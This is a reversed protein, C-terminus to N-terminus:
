IPIFMFFLTIGGLSTFFGLILMVVGRVSRPLMFEKQFQAFYRNRPDRMIQNEKQEWRSCLHLIGAGAFFLVIGWVQESTLFDGIM